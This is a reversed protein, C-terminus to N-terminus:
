EGKIRKTADQPIFLKEFLWRGFDEKNIGMFSGFWGSYERYEKMLEPHNEYPEDGYVLDYYLKAENM